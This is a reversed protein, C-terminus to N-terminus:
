CGRGDCGLTLLRLDNVQEFVSNRNASIRQNLLAGSIVDTTAYGSGAAYIDSRIGIGRVDLSM